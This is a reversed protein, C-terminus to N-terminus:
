EVHTWSQRRVVHNIIAVGVGFQAALQKHTHGGSAYLARIERVSDDTLKSNRHNMGRPRKEPHEELAKHLRDALEPHGYAYHREGRPFREPHTHSGNRDGSAMREKHTRPWSLDGILIQGRELADRINEKPTGAYLHEPNVCPKHDCTHLVGKGDPISGKFIMYSARNARTKKGNLLFMGYYTSTEPLNNWLWCGSESITVHRMFRPLTKNDM